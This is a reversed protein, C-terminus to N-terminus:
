GFPYDDVKKEDTETVDGVIETDSKVEYRLLEIMNSLMAYINLTLSVNFYKSDDILADSIDFATDNIISANSFKDTGLDSLYM